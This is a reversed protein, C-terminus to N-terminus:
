PQPTRVNLDFNTGGRQAMGNVKYRIDELLQRNASLLDAVFAVLFAMFGSGMLLSALVLSQVHGAGTGGAMFYLYRIGLLLGPLFLMLAIFSFFRFPKYIVSIRVITILSRKVYSASSKVLRSPRLDENVQVPVSMVVMNNRGAQIITELTYTYNNFVMLRQATERNMARFGSPADDIDTGSAARVAWSGLRQLRKKFPSFHQISDIPRAGVVLDAKRAVIPTTLDPIGSADYQNDADTNVIVDAGRRLAVELGTMFARALGLNAHHKVVVDAGNEIAVQATSDDSGDDIVLWEVCDFGNVQRPLEALTTSLTKAENLCPIQIVLKLHFELRTTLTM